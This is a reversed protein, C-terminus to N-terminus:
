ELLFNQKLDKDISDRLWNIVKLVKAFFVKKREPSIMLKYKIFFEGIFFFKTKKSILDILGKKFKM